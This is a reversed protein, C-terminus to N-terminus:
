YTTDVFVFLALQGLLALQGCCHALLATRKPGVFSDFFRALPLSDDNDSGRTTRVTASANDTFVVFSSWSRRHCCHSPGGLRATRFSGVPLLCVRSGCARGAHVRQYPAQQRSSKDKARRRGASGSCQLCQRCPHRQPYEWESASRLMELCVRLFYSIRM